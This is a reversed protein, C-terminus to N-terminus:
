GVRGPRAGTAEVVTRCPDEDPGTGTAARELLERLLTRQAPELGALLDDEAAAVRADVTALLERGRDTAVIRRARRDAPDQQREVFGCEEFADVLYTMVTRDIGLTAALAAQSPLNGHVVASLLQYGRTGQPLEDAAGDVRASWERLLAALSWGFLSHQGTRAETPTTSM